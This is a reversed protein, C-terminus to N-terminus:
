KSFLTGGGMDFINSVWMPVTGVVLAGVISIAALGFAQNKLSLGANLILVGAFIRSAWSFIATDVIRLLSGAAELKDSQDSGPIKAVSAEAPSILVMLIYIMIMLVLVWGFSPGGNNFDHRVKKMREKLHVFSLTADGNLTM